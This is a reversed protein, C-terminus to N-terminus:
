LKAERFAEIIEPFHSFPETVAIRNIAEEPTAGDDVLSTFAFDLLQRIELKSDGFPTPQNDLSSAISVGILSTPVTEEIFRLAREVVHKDKGVADLVATIVPHDRNVRYKVEGNRGRYELWAFVFSQSNNRALVKGKHRYVDEAKSRTARAIRRLSEVLESPPRVTSKKVDVQWEHDFSAAFEIAIRALKTHEDRALGLGLWNGQVLLRGSRYVYFGQQQTWGHVGAGREMEKEDLKSRHPLVYPTVRVLSGRFPLEESELQQTAPHSLMFPDWPEIECGNVDIRIRGRGTLFRHFTVELHRQVRATVDLFRRHAKRDNAEVAGVLRDLKSWQVVTGGSSPPQIIGCGEPETRLLRWESFESVTDLDWRRVSTLRTSNEISAVTLERAQSFSATKLGLGFRGLDSADREELPGISGPRMAGILASESMGRGDDVIRVVSNAGAWIFNVFIRKAGAAISNDVLDAVAAEPSYGLARLSEILADARPEAIDWGQGVVEVGSNKPATHAHVTEYGTDHLSAPTRATSSIISKTKSQNNSSQTMM